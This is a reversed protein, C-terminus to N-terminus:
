RSGVTFGQRDILAVGSSLYPRVFLTSMREAEALTKTYVIAVGDPHQDFWAALGERGVQELNHTLRGYFHYQDNYASVHVVTRDASELRQIERALPAMDFVPAFSWVVTLMLIVFVSMSLGSLLEPLYEPKRRSFYAASGALAILLLGAIQWERGALSAFWLNKSWLPYALLSMGIGAILLPVVLMGRRPPEWAGALSLVIAPWLPLIYHIQKGGSLSLLVFGPVMWCLMFRLSGASAPRGFAAIASRWAHAVFVLPFCVLPLVALYFWPPQRHAMEGSIRGAVQRWLIANRFEEGGALAAPVVWLLAMAGGIALATLGGQWWARGSARTGGWWPGAVLVPVVFLLIFPGKCLIGLGIALGCKLWARWGGGAAASLVCSMAWLICATLLVDFMLATSFALWLMGSLLLWGATVGARRQEPWLRAAMQALLVVCAFSALTSLARPWWDNVGFLSWGAGILWFLLPPKHHYPQGNAHLVLWDGHLWSEWAVGIYRTEDIPIDPRAILSVLLLVLLAAAWMWTTKKTELPWVPPLVSRM